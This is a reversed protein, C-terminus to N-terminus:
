LLMSICCLSVSDLWIAFSVGTGSLHRGPEHPSVAVLALDSESCCIPYLQVLLQDPPIPQHTGSMVFMRM